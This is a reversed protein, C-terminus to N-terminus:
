NKSYYKIFPRDVLNPEFGKVEPRLFSFNTYYFLPAIPLEELLIAEVKQMLELRKDPHQEASSLAFLRDYEKNSFGTHNNGSSSTFLELFSAPDPYDGQWGSRSIDFDMQRQATLYVKWELNYPKVEVGLNKKWMEQLAQAIRKHLEKTDYQLTLPRMGKGNPYGAEELLKKAKKLNEEYNETLIGKPSHYKGTKPPVLAYAPLEGGRTINEVLTKRDIALSLAQRVRPDNLPPRTTNFRYFYTIFASSLRFNPDKRFAPVLANPAGNHGTWDLKGQRFLNVATQKDTLPYATVKEIKVQSANWYHPNKKLVIKQNVVWEALQYAGNSVINEPRTWRDGHKEVVEKKLPYFISEATLHLFYPVPKSLRVQFTRDDLAKVGVKKANEPTPKKAYEAAGEIHDTLWYSYSGRTEPKMARLWSWEFDKATLPTGDSWKADARLKFTYVRGNETPSPISEAVGPRLSVWDPGHTLLGEFLQIVINNDPVGTTIHPDITEPEAENGFAFETKDLQAPALALVLSFHLAGLLTWM